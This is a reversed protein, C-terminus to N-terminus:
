NRDDSRWDLNQDTQIISLERALNEFVQRHIKNAPENLTAAPPRIVNGSLAERIATAWAEVDLGPLIKTYSPLDPDALHADSVLTPVGLQIAELPPLNNPGLLSPMVVASAFQILGLLRSRDIEGLDIVKDQLNLGAIQVGLKAQNGYDAGTLILRAEPIESTVRAFARLLTLHNKHPWRAAPYILYPFNFERNAEILSPITPLIGNVWVRAPEIGYLRQIKERTYQHDVLVASARGVGIRLLAERRTWIGARWVESFGPLQRHGLDWVTSVFPVKGTWLVGATLSTFYAVDIQHKELLRATRLRFNLLIQSFLSVPNLSVFLELASVRYLFTGSDSSGASALGKSPVFEVLEIINERVLQNLLRSLNVEYTSTGTGSKGLIAHTSYFVGVRIRRYSGSREKM